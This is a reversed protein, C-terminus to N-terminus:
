FPRIEELFFFANEDAFSLGSRMWSLDVFSSGFYKQYIGYFCVLFFIPTTKRLVYNFDVSKFNPAFILLLFIM